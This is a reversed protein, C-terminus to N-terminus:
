KKNELLCSIKGTEIIEEVYCYSVYKPNFTNKIGYPLRNMYNCKYFYDPNSNTIGANHMIDCTEWKIKEEAPWCFDLEKPCETKWGRKWINWLVAWMDATWIQIPHHTPDKKIMENVKVFMKESHNYVDKWFDSDINKLIYQAGGSNEENKIVIKESIGVIKCMEKLYNEGKSRIYKAGIYSITDSLYHIDDKLFKDFDVPKTFVIDCDCYFIASKKLEPFKKWHKELVHPRISSIYKHNIRTDEYFFFKIESYHKQLIKWKNPINKNYSCIIQINNSSVKNKLLNNLWVEIQWLYYDIAPQVCIYLLKM